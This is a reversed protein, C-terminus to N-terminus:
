VLYARRILHLEVRSLSISCLLSLSLSQSHSLSLARVSMKPAGAKGSPSFFHHSHRHTLTAGQLQGQGKGDSDSLLVVSYLLSLCSHSLAIPSSSLHNQTQSLYPSGTPRQKYVAAGWDKIWRSYDILPSPIWCGHNASAMGLAPWAM